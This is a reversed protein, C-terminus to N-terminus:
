YCYNLTSIYIIRICTGLIGCMGLAMRVYTMVHLQIGTNVSKQNITLADTACWIM